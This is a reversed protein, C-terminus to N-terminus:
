GLALLAEKAEAYALALEELQERSGEFNQGKGLLELNTCPVRMRNAGVFDISSRLYHATSALLQGDQERVAHELKHLLQPM